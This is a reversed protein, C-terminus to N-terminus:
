LRMKARTAALILEDLADRYDQQHRKTFKILDRIYKLGAKREEDPLSKNVVENLIHSAWIQNITSLTSFKLLHDVHNPDGDPDTTVRQGWVKHRRSSMGLPEDQSGSPRKTTGVAYFIDYNDFHFVDFFDRSREREGFELRRTSITAGGADVNRFIGWLRIAGFTELGNDATGLPILRSDAYVREVEAEGKGPRNEGDQILTTKTAKKPDGFLEDTAMVLVNDEALLGEWQFRLTELTRTRRADRQRERRGERAQEAYQSGQQDIADGVSGSAEGIRDRSAEFSM